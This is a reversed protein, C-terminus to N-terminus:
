RRRGGRWSWCGGAECVGVAHKGREAHQVHGGAGGGAGGAGLVLPNTPTYHAKAMVHLTNALERPGFDGINRLASRSRRCRNIWLAAPLVTACPRCSSAFPRLWTRLGLNLHNFEIVRNQIVSCLDQVGKCAMIEKNIAMDVKAAPRPAHVRHERERKRGHKRGAV